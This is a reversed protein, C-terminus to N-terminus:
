SGEQLLDHQVTELYRRLTMKKLAAARVLNSIGRRRLLEVTASLDQEDEILYNGAPEGMSTGIPVHHDLLLHQIITQARRGTVGAEAAIEPIQRAQQRGWRLARLVARDEADCLGDPDLEPRPVDFLPGLNM